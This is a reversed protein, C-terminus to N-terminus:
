PRGGNLQREVNTRACEGGRYSKEDVVIRKEILQNPVARKKQAKRRRDVEDHIGTANRDHNREAFALRQLLDQHITIEPGERIVQYPGANRARNGPNVVAEIPLSRQQENGGNVNDVTRVAEVQAFQLIFFPVHLLHCVQMKTRDLGQRQGNFGLVLRSVIVQLP